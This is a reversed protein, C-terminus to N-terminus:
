LQQQHGSQNRLILSSRVLSVSSRPLRSQQDRAAV